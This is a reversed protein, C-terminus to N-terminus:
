TSRTASWDILVSSPIIPRTPGPGGCCIGTPETGSRLLGSGTADKIVGCQWRWIHRSGRPSRIHRSRLPSGDQSPWDYEAQQVLLMAQPFLEVNGIHDPRTHSVALYRVDDPKIGIKDLEGALTNSRRWANPDTSSKSFISDLLGTGYWGTMAM